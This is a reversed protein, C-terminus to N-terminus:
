CGEQRLGTGVVASRIWLTNRVGRSHFSAVRVGGIAKAPASKEYRKFNLKHKGLLSAWCRIDESASTLHTLTGRITGQRGLRGSSRAPDAGACCQGEMAASATEVIPWLPNKEHDSVM